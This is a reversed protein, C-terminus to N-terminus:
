NQHTPRTQLSWGGMNELQFWDTRGPQSYRYVAALQDCDMDLCVMGAPDVLRLTMRHMHEARAERRRRKRDYRAAASLGLLLAIPIQVAVDVLFRAIM